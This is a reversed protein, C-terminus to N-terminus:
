EIIQHDNTKYKVANRQNFIFESCSSLHTPLAAAAKESGAGRNAAVWGELSDGAHGFESWLLPLLDPAQVQLVLFGEAVDARAETHVAEGDAM